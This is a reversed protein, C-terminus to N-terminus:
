VIGPSEVIFLNGTQHEIGPASTSTTAKAKGKASRRNRADVERQLEVTNFASCTLDRFERMLKGFERTLWEMHTLTSDTHLRLKALAHWEATRFLLKM